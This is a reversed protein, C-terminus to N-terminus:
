GGRVGTYDSSTLLAHLEQLYLVIGREASWQLAPHDSRWNEHGVSTIRDCPLYLCTGDKWNPRFVAPVRAGGGPWKAFPLPKDSEIDWPRATPADQPYGGCDFRFCYEGPAGDRMAATIAIEVLPWNISLLRWRNNHVGLQFAGSDVHDRFAREDPRQTVLQVM